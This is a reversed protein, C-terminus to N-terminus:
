KYDTLMSLLSYRSQKGFFISSDDPSWALSSFYLRSDNNNTMQKAEGAIAPMVWLNDKGERNAVFAIQKKDPSLHINFLYAEKINTKQRIKSDANVVEFLSVETSSGVTPLGDVSALYVGDGAFNWGLLRIFTNDALITDYKKTQIDLILLSFVNKGNPQNLKSTLAIQKGDNSWIPCEISKKPDLNDTLQIESTGESSILWLNSQGGKNSVYAIKAGDPSWSFDSTQIRNYPLVSYSIPLVGDPTLLKEGGGNIQISHLQRLKGTARVFLLSKGDPSWKPLGANDILETPEQTSDLQKTLIKGNLLKDGQSLNKISQYAITKGDPSVSGWLESNIDSAIASEKKTKFNISWLDSEEKASGTLISRGDNSVDLILSDQNTYSLQNPPSSSIDTAFVQFVDNTAASFLIRQNDPHWCINKILSKTTYIKRGDDGNIDSVYIAQDENETVSYAISKEDHSIAFQIRVYGKAGFNTLQKTQGSILDIEFLEKTTSFYIRNEKSWLLMRGSGNEIQTILKPSGGLKPVRWFGPQKGRTSYYAIEGGDPSWIPNENEFEDKTIQIAEGSTTQKIWINKSGVKTSSFAIMQGDPSFTGSSYIEGPSSSWNVVEQTKLVATPKATGRFGFWWIGGFLLFVSAIIGLIHILSFRPATAISRTQDGRTKTSNIVATNQLPRSDSDISKKVDNLDVLLDNIHQYRQDRDKRLSKNVIREIEQPLEPVVECLSKPSDKLISGITDIASEGQFPTEGAFMEYLVVGFSFIDTRLDVKQGRAQEPSMYQPTGMIMGDITLKKLQTAAESDVNGTEQNLKALGFDLVKVIGDKRIMVNDPKIDRHIIGASHASALASGIQTAIELVSGITLKERVLHHNLTIGDIFETAIFPKNEFEGIEYVTIINPHNLASAAKAERFFRNLRNSDKQLTDSLFKIAVKRELKTDQALFVAGMGGEGLLSLIEYQNISKNLIRGHQENQFVENVFSKPSSDIVSDFSKEFSLLSNVEKRLEIDDGCEKELFSDRDTPSIELVAHYIEEVKKLREPTM